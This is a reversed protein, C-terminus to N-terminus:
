KSESKDEGKEYWKCEAQKSIQVRNGTKKRCVCYSGKIDKSYKCNLCKKNKAVQEQIKLVIYKIYEDRSLGFTKLVECLQKSTLDQEIVMEACKQISYCNLEYLSTAVEIIQKETM